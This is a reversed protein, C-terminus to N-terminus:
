RNAQTVAPANTGSPSGAVAAQQPQVPMGPRISMLGNVVVWDGPQVGDRIVRLGDIIPGLKVSRYDVQNRENVVYVFKQAQDTSVAQDPVLLAPHKDSASIRLRAFFGPLLSRDENRFVGRMRITGTNPNVENNVFDIVGRHPFGPEDALGLECPLQTEHLSNRGRERVLRQYRQFAQEDVEAYCYIPDLSVITTLATAQGQNGNILNGETVLKRSIRGSVPATVHTYELNLKAMEASAQASQIGAEAQRTAKNRADAEEESIAKSKLLREARALDNSALESRTQAQRLEAETRDVEAQYPRPDVIFLLDGQKVEAGEKFHVSQLYGSVRARVQVMDVAELRGPYEDWEVVERQLPQNVTVSPASRAAPAASKRCAATVLCLAALAGCSM